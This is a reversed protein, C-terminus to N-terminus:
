GSPAATCRSWQPPTFIDQVCKFPFQPFRHAGCAHFVTRPVNATRCIQLKVAAQVCLQLKDRLSNRVPVSRQLQAGDAPRPSLDVTYRHTKFIHPASLRWIQPAAIPFCFPISSDRCGPIHLQQRPLDFCEACQIFLVRPLLHASHSILRVCIYSIALLHGDIKTHSKM